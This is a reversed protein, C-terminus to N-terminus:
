DNHKIAEEMMKGIKERRDLEQNIEFQLKVHCQSHEKIETHSPSSLSYLLEILEDSDFHLFKKYNLFEEHKM